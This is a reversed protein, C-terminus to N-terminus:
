PLKKVSVNSIEITSAPTDGIKGMSIVFDIAPDTPETVTITRTVTQEENANLSIDAGGYWAYTANLFAFKVARAQTSKIKFSVSYSAGNELLLGSQKLQVNWDQDGPNTIDYSIKGAPFTVTAAGPASIAWINWHDSTAAFDGNQIMETGEQVPNLPPAEVEELTINDIYVQHQTTIQTGGVSGMSISLITYPDTASTMQFTTTFTQYANTLNIIKSGSYPTWDNDKSGDRQLAYMIARNMSSKADLTIKYWKGNELKINNQKLQIKWDQDGSDKIDFAAANNETLGDVVYTV